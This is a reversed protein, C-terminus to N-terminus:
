LLSYGDILVYGNDFTTTKSVDCGLDIAIISLSSFTVPTPPSPDQSLSHLAFDLLWRPVKKGARRWSEFRALRTLAHAVVVQEGSSPTYDEWRVRQVREASWTYLTMKHTNTPFDMHGMITPYFVRHIIGLIHSFPLSDFDTRSHLATVYRQRIGELVRPTPDIDTFDHLLTPRSLKLHSLTLPSFTHLCCLASVAALQESGQTIVASGNSTKICSVLVDFCGIALAPDAVPSTITALYKLASLRVPGDLSTRLAWTICRLDLVVTQQKSGHFHSDVYDILDRLIALALGLVDLLLFLPLILIFILSIIVTGLFSREKWLGFISTLCYYCLSAEIRPFVVSYLVGLTHPIHRLINAAPTQYPCSAYAAGAVVISLFFLVGLSTFGIIVTAVTINIDWFYRSLACGLLLLGVQLMLPLSELVYDFYWRVIGDLKRQRNQSREIASGRVDISAYRNLWQKGLMALFASLLSAALSAFLIAQVEVIMHPPGTWQPLAPVDNGFTTNDIKYILVRLLAATQDNPDPQLQSSVQIIFASAVASFLGAQSM